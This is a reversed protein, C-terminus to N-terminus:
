SGSTRSTFTESHTSLDTVHHQKPLHPLPLPWLDAQADTPLCSSNVSCNLLLLPSNCVGEGIEAQEAGMKGSCVPIARKRRRDARKCRGHQLQREVGRVCRRELDGISQVLEGRLGKWSTAGVRDLRQQRMSLQKAVKKWCSVANQLRQEFLRTLPLLFGDARHDEGV